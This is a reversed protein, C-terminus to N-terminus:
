SQRTQVLVKKTQINQETFFKSSVCAQSPKPDPKATKLTCFILEAHYWLEWNNDMVKAPFSNVCYVFTPQTLLAVAAAAAVGVSERTPACLFEMSAHFM